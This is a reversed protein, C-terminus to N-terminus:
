LEYDEVDVLVKVLVQVFTLTYSLINISFIIIKIKNIKVQVGKEYIDKTALIEMRYKNTIIRILYWSLVLLSVSLLVFNHTFDYVTMKFFM